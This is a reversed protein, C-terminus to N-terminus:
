IEMMIVGFSSDFIFIFFKAKIKAYWNSKIKDDTSRRSDFLIFNHPNPLSDSLKRVINHSKTDTVRPHYWQSTQLDFSIKIKKKNPSELLPIWNHSDLGFLVFFLRKRMEEFYRSKSSSNGVSIEKRLKLKEREDCYLRFSNIYYNQCSMSRVYNIEVENITM